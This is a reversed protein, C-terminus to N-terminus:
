PKSPTVAVANGKKGFQFLCIEAVKKGGVWQYEGQIGQIVPSNYFWQGVQRREKQLSQAEPPLKLEEMCQTWAFVANYM